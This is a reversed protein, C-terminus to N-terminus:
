KWEPHQAMNKGTGVADNLDTTYYASAERGGKYNVRYEGYETKKLAIGLASLIKIADKQKLPNRRRRTPNKKIAVGFRVSDDWVAKLGGKEILDGRYLRHKSYRVDRKWGTEGFPKRTLAKMAQGITRFKDNSVLIGSETIYYPNRSRKRKTRRKM